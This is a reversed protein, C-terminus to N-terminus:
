ILGEGKRQTRSFNGQLESAADNSVTTKQIADDVEQSKREKTGTHKQVRNFLGLSPVHSWSHTCGGGGSLKM